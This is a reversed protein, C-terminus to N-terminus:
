RVGYRNTQYRNTPIFKYNCNKNEKNLEDIIQRFLNDQISLTRVSQLYIYFLIRRTEKDKEPVILELIKFIYYPYFNRNPKDVPHIREHIEVIRSFIGSIKSVLEDSLSPPGVGTLKKMIKSINKNLKTRKLKKLIARIKYPDVLRLIEGDDDLIKRIQNILKEGLPDNETCSLESDDEKAQIHTLWSKLHRDPLFRGTKLKCYNDTNNQGFQVSLPIDITKRVSCKSSSCIAEQREYDIVMESNCEDCKIQNSVVRGSSPGNTLMSNITMMSFYNEMQRTVVQKTQGAIDDKKGYKRHEMIHELLKRAISDTTQQLKENAILRSMMEINDSHITLLGSSLLKLEFQKETANIRAVEGILKLKDAISRLFEFKQKISRVISICQGSM